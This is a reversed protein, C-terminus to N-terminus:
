QRDAEIKLNDARDERQVIQAYRSEIIANRDTRSVTDAVVSPARDRAGFSLIAGFAVAFTALGIRVPRQWLTV